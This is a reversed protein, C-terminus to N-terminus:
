FTFRGKQNTSEIRLNNENAIEVKKNNNDKKSNGSPVVITAFSKTVILLFSCFVILNMKKKIQFGQYIISLNIFIQVFPLIKM